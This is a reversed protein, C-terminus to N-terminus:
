DVKTRFLRWAVALWIGIAALWILIDNMVSDGSRSFEASSNPSYMFWGGDASGNVAISVASACVVLVAAVAIGVCVRQAQNM